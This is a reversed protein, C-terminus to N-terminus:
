STTFLDESCLDCEKHCFQALLLLAAPNYPLDNVELEAEEVLQQLSMDRDEYYKLVRKIMHPNKILESEFVYLNFAYSPYKYEVLKDTIYRETAYDHGQEGACLDKNTDDPVWTGDQQEEDFEPYGYGDGQQELWENYGLQVDENINATRAQLTLGLANLLDLAGSVLEVTM